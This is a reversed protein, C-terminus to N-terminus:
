IIFASFLLSTMLEDLHMQGRDLSRRRIIIWGVVISDDTVYWMIIRIKWIYFM